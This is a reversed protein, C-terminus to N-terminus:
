QFFQAFAFNPFYDQKITDVNELFTIDAGIVILSTQLFFPTDTIVHCM